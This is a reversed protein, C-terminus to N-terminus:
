GAEAESAQRMYEAYAHDAVETAVDGLEEVMAALCEASSRFPYPQKADIAQLRKQITVLDM